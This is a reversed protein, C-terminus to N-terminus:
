LAQTLSLEHQSLGSVSGRAHFKKGNDLIGRTGACSIRSMQRYPIVM